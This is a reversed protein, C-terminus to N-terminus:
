DSGLRDSQAQRGVNGARNPLGRLTKTRREHSEKGSAVFVFVFGLNSKSDNFNKLTTLIPMEFFESLNYIM